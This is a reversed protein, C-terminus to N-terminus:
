SVSHSSPTLAARLVQENAKRIRQSLAQKSIDFEAALESLTTDRPSAFYGRELALALAEHQEATIDNGLGNTVAEELTSVRELQLHIDNDLCYDHFTTLRDHDFFHIRFYWSDGGSAAMIAADAEQVGNILGTETESWELRYLARDGVLDLQVVSDIYRDRAVEREFTEFDGDSVWVYPIHYGSVPVIRELEVEMDAGTQLARGLPFSGVPLTFEAIVSM